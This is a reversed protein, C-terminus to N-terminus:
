KVIHLKELVTGPVAKNASWFACAFLDSLSYLLTKEIDSLTVTDIDTDLTQQNSFDKKSPCKEELGIKVYTGGPHAHRCLHYNCDNNLCKKTRLNSHSSVDVFPIQCYIGPSLCIYLGRKDEVWYISPPINQVSNVSPIMISRLGINYKHLNHKKEEIKKEDDIGKLRLLSKTTQRYMQALSELEISAIEIINIINTLDKNEPNLSGDISEIIRDHASKLQLIARSM